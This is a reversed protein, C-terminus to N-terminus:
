RRLPSTLSDGLGHVVFGLVGSLILSYKNAIDFFIKESIISYYLLFPISIIGLYVLRRSHFFKRHSVKGYGGKEMLDPFLAFFMYVPLHFILIWLLETSLIEEQKLVYIFILFIGISFIKHGSKSLGAKNKIMQITKSKMEM